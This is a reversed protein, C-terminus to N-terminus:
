GKKTKNSSSFIFPQTFRRLNFYSLKVTSQAFAEAYNKLRVVSNRIECIETETMTNIAKGPKTIKICYLSNYKQTSM